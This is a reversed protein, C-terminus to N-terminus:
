SIVKLVENLGIPKILYHDFGAEEGQKRADDTSYGTLAVLKGKYGRSRLVKAVEFGDQDPLGIDLLITDPQLAMAQQLGQRADYAYWVSYGKLELLRGMNSAAMENDDVILITHAVKKEKPTNFITVEDTTSTEELTQMEEHTLLPLTITFTSGKGVGESEVTLTGDHIEVFARALALGIGLGKKSLKSFNGQRFPEFIEAMSEPPIGMGTDIFKIEVRDNKVLSVTITIHTGPESFKSANTLLNSFVQELRVSDALIIIPPRADKFTLSQHREKLLHATSMCSRELINTLSYLGKKLSIKGEIIRSVDLLDDLLRRVTEMREEMMALLETEESNGTHRIKLLDIATVIPALPNRLEHALVAIFDNKASSESEIKLVANELSTVHARLLNSNLRRDEEISVIILFIIALVTLFEQIQALQAPFDAPLPVHTGVFLGALTFLSTILLALTVFRPRLRLATWFLPALMFYFLGPRAVRSIPAFLLATNIVIIFLFVMITEVMELPRRKFRPKAIWRLLFPLVILLSLVLGPYQVTWPAYPLNLTFFHTLFSDATPQILAIVVATSLLAIMDRSRRFLPDIALKQLLMAGGVAQLTLAIPIVILFPVSPNILVCSIVSVLYVLPWISLDVFFLLAVSFAAVPLFVGPYTAIRLSIWFIATYSLVYLLIGRWNNNFLGIYGTEASM